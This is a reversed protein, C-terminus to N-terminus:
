RLWLFGTGTAQGAWRLSGHVIKGGAHDADRWVLDFGHVTQPPPTGGLKAWPIAGAVALVAVEERKAMAGNLRSERRLRSAFDPLPTAADAGVLSAPARGDALPTVVVNTAKGNVVLALTLREGNAVDLVTEDDELGAAVYLNTEDWAAWFQARADVRYSPYGLHEGGDALQILSRSTPAWSWDYALFAPPRAAWAALDGDLKPPANVRAAPLLWLTQDAAGEIGSAARLNARVLGCEFPTAGDLVTPLLVTATGGPPLAALKALPERLLWAGPTCMPQSKGFRFDVVIDKLEAPTHNTATVAM